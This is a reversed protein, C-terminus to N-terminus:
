MGFQSLVLMLSLRRNMLSVCDGINLGLNKVGFTGHRGHGPVSGPGSAHWASTSVVVGDERGIVNLRQRCSNLKM